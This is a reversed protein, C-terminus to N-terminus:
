WSGASGTIRVEIYSHGITIVDGDALLWNDVPMDNVTTGNTSNLDVLVADRGDWTIEAHRRSVGTDPLRFDADTGRGIINSGEMVLYTRSSGDQLLLTVTPAHMVPEGDYPNAPGRTGAASPPGGAPTGAAFAGTGAEGWLAEPSVAAGGPGVQGSAPSVPHDGASPPEDSRHDPGSGDAPSDRYLRGGRYTAANGPVDVAAASGAPYGASPEASGTGAPQQPARGGPTEGLADVYASTGAPEPDSGCACDLQGTRRDPDEVITVVVPGSCVWGNNRAMRTLVEATTAPLSPHKDSLNRFDKGSVRVTFTNPAETYGEFTAVKNEGMEDRLTQEVESAVIKGGMVFAFGNNLGRQLKGDLKQLSEDISAFKKRVSVEHECEKQSGRCARVRVKDAPCCVGDVAADPQPDVKLKAPAKGCLTVSTYPGTAGVVLPRTLRLPGFMGCVGNNQRM